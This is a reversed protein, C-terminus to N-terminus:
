ASQQQNSDMRTMLMDLKGRTTEVQRSAHSNLNEIRRLSALVLQKGIGNDMANIAGRVRELVSPVSLLSRFSNLVQEETNVSLSDSLTNISPAKM